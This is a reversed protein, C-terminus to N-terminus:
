MQAELEPATRVLTGNLLNPPPASAIWKSAPPYAAIVDWWVGMRGCCSPHLGTAGEGHNPGPRGFKFSPDGVEGRPRADPLHNFNIIFLM